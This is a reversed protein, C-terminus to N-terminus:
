GAGAAGAQHSDLGLEESQDEGERWILGPVICRSTMRYYASLCGATHSSSVLATQLLPTQLTVLPPPELHAKLQQTIGWTGQLM